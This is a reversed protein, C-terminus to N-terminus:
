KLDQQFGASFERFRSWFRSFLGASIRSFGQELGPKDQVEFGASIRSFV